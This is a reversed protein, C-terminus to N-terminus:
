EKEAESYKKLMRFLLAKEEDSLDELSDKASAEKIETKAKKTNENESVSPTEPATKSDFSNLFGASNDYGNKNSFDGSGKNNNVSPAYYDSTILKESEKSISSLATKRSLRYLDADPFKQNTISFATVEIGETDKQSYFDSDAFVNKSDLYFSASPAASSGASEQLYYRLLKKETAEALFDAKREMFKNLSEQDSIANKKCLAAIQEKSIEITVSIDASYSFDPRLSSYSKFIDASPLEGNIKKSFQYPLVSFSRLSANTPLLFEWYWSFTGSEAVKQSVGGTKSVVIGVHNPKIKIQTWGLYFVAAAFIVIILVSFFFSKLKKAM